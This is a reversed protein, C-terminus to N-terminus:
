AADSDPKEYSLLYEGEGVPVVKGGMASILRLTATFVFWDRRLQARGLQEVLWQARSPIPSSM